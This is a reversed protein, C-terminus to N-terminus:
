GAVQAQAHSLEAAYPRPDIVFLLQGQRVLQGDEFHVSEIASSVRPRIEVSDVPEFRGSYDDWDSVRAALPTAMEVLPLVEPPPMPESCGAGLTAVIASLSIITRKGMAAAVIARIYSSACMGATPARKDFDLFDVRPHFHQRRAPQGTAM